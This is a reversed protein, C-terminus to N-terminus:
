SPSSRGWVARSSCPGGTPHSSRWGTSRAATSSRFRSAKGLVRPSKFAFARTSTRTDVDILTRQDVIAPQVFRDRNWQTVLEAPRRGTARAEAVDLLLSWLRSAPLGQALADYTGAPLGATVWSRSTGMTLARGRAHAEDVPPPDEYDRLADPWDCRRGGCTQADGPAELRGRAAAPTCISARAERASGSEGAGVESGRVVRLAADGDQVSEDAHGSVAVRCNRGAAM